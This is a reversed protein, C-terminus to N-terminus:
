APRALVAYIGGGKLNGSTSLVIEGRSVQRRAHLAIVKLTHGWIGANM